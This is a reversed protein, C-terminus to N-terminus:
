LPWMRFVILVPELFKMFATKKLHNLLEIALAKAIDNRCVFSVTGDEAPYHIVGKQLANGILDPLLEMYLSNRFFVHTLGSDKIYSETEAAQQTALFHSEKKADLSSTYILRKVGSVLAAKVVNREQFLGEDGTVTTSIQLLTEVGEFADIMSEVNNYDGYRVLVGCNALTSCKEPSRAVAVIQEPNVYELLLRITQTGLQGSAGTIGIIPTTKNELTNM